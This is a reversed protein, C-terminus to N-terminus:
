PKACVDRVAVAAAADPHSAVLSSAASRAGAADGAACLMRAWAARREVELEGAPYREAHQELLARAKTVDGERLAVGARRLLAAEAALTSTDAATPAAPATTAPSPARAEDRSRPVAARATRHSAATPGRTALVQPADSGIAAAATPPAPPRVIAAPPTAAPPTATLPTAEPVARSPSVIAAQEIVTIPDRAHAPADGRGSLAATAAVTAVASAAAVALKASWTSALTALAGGRRGLDLGLLLWVRNALKAPPPSTRLRSLDPDHAGVAEALRARALRLRSYVTNLPLELAQAVEPGSLEEVQTLLFVERQGPDMRALADEVLTLADPEIAADAARDSILSLAEHKRVRRTQARHHRSAVHRAISAVWARPSADPRLADIRRHVTLWVEQAVDERAGSPVGFHATLSWVFGFHGRYLARFRHDPGELHHGLAGM